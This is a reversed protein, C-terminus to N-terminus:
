LQKGINVMEILVECCSHPELCATHGSIHLVVFGVPRFLLWMLALLTVKTHVTHM